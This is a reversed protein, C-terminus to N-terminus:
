DMHPMLNQSAPSSAFRLARSILVPLVSVHGEDEFEKYVVRLGRSALRSLRVALEQANDNIRSKHTRELEGAALLLGINFHEQDLRSTFQQEAELLSRKNWHISPSGAIYTQFAEPKTFLTHLVFLGGLSHGFITQKCRDIKFDREIDPKLEEEIFQLFAEAGGQEPWTGGDPRAPLEEAPVPLTFDYHRNPPFPADSEYGIGVIVAQVVGSKEPRSAQVRVAEVMTGFVSNADLLYIVPYGSAPPETHPTSVLIRYERNEARSYMTRQETRPIAVLHGNTDSVM